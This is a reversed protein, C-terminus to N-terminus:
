REAEKVSQSFCALAAVAIPRKTPQMLKMLKDLEPCREADLVDFLERCTMFM